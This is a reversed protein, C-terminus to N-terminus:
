IEQIRMEAIRHFQNVVNNGNLLDFVHKKLNVEYNYARFLKMKKQDITYKKWAQLVQHLLSFKIIVEAGEKKQSKDFETLWLAFFRRKRSKEVEDRNLKLLTQKLANKKLSEM